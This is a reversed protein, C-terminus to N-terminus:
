AIHIYLIGSPQIPPVPVASLPNNISDSPHKSRLMLRIVINSIMELQPEAFTPNRHCSQLIGWCVHIKLDRMPDTIHNLEVGAMLTFCKWVQWCLTSFHFYAPITWRPFHVQSTASQRLIMRRKGPCNLQVFDKPCQSQATWTTPTRLNWSIQHTALVRHFSHSAVSLAFNSAHVDGM